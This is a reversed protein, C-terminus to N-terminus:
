LIQDLAGRLRGVAKEDLRYHVYYGRKDAVVLGGDRLARLHQSVASQTMDLNRSLAGVCLVRDRLLRVIQVRAACSLLKFLQAVDDDLKTM